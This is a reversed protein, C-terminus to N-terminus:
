NIITYSFCAPNVAITASTAISFSTGAVRATVVPDILSTLTTNCTVGLAAGLSEDGQMIIESNATVATTNITRTTSGAAIAFRGAAASGCV